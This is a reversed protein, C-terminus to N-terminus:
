VNAVSLINGKIKQSLKFIIGKRGESLHFNNKWSGPELVFPDDPDISVFSAFLTQSSYLIFFSFFLKSFQDSLETCWLLPSPFLIKGGGLLKFPM